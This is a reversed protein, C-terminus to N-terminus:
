RTYSDRPRLLVDEAAGSERVAGREMIVVDDAVSRLVGLDHTVFVISTQRQELLNMLLELITAQVSVDLASTVEDCLIVEPEVVLARALAVRQRQGGSLHRPYRDLFHAGLRMQALIEAAYNRRESAAVDPRFLKLPRELAQGITHRPNLTADPNQFVIQIARRVAAPRAAVAPSLERGDFEMRGSRPILLGILARLLTSKGSGSEGAIGLVRGRELAISIGEVAVVTHRRQRYECRLDYTALVAEREPGNGPPDPAAERVSSSIFRSALDIESARVCRVRRDAIKVLPVPISCKSAAYACRDLFACQHEVVVPPPSGAIGHARRRTRVSPVADILAATYPHRPREFVESAPGLEVVEGAYMIGLDDCITALLALNHSVYVTATGASRTLEVILNNVQAQTTVDLGTTPEDLILVQPVCALGLALAIRQQQGGSFEHPYRDLASDPDPIRVQSLLDLMRTRAARRAVHQHIRLPEALQRGVRIAPNLATSTDQPLYAIQAGWRRRLQTPTARLLDAGDFGVSGGLVVTNPSRFGMLTLALTSKGCGSEGAIGLIRERKLTLDVGNVVQRIGDRGRYGVSIGSATLAAANGNRAQDRLM